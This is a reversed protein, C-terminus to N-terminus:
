AGIGFLHGEHPPTQKWNHRQQYHEIIMSIRIVRNGATGTKRRIQGGFPL